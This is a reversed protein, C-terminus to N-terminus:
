ETVGKVIRRNVKDVEYGMSVLVVCVPFIIPTLLYFFFMRVNVREM